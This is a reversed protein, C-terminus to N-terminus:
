GIFVHLLRQFLLVFFIDNALEPLTLGLAVLSQLYDTHKIVDVMLLRGLFASDFWDVNALKARLSFRDLKAIVHEFFFSVLAVRPFLDLIM